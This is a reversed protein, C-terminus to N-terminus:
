KLSDTARAVRSPRVAAVRRQDFHDLEAFLQQGAETFEEM